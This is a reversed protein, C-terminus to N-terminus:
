PPNRDPSRFRPRGSPWPTPGAGEGPPARGGNGAPAPPIEDPRSLRDGPAGSVPAGRPGAGPPIRNASQLLKKPSPRPIKEYTGGGEGLIGALGWFPASPPM